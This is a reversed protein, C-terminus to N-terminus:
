VKLGHVERLYKRAARDKEEISVTRRPMRVINKKKPIPKTLVAKVGAETVYYEWRKGSESKLPVAELLGARRLEYLRSPAAGIMRAMERITYYQEGFITRM